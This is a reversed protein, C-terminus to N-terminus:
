IIIVANFGLSAHIALLSHWSLHCEMTPAFHTIRTYILKSSNHNCTSHLDWKYHIHTQRRESFLRRTFPTYATSASSEKSEQEQQQVRLKCLALPTCVIMWFHPLPQSSLRHCLADSSFVHGDIYPSLPISVTFSEDTVIQHPTAIEATPPSSENKKLQKRQEENKQHTSLRFKRGGMASTILLHKFWNDYTYAALSQKWWWFKIPTTLLWGCGQKCSTLIFACMPTNILM